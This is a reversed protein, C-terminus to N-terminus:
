TQHGRPALRPRGRKRPPAELVGGERVLASDEFKQIDNLRWRPGRAGPLKIAQPLLTGNACLNRITKTAVGWRRGLAAADYIQRDLQRERDGSGGVDSGKAAAVHGARTTRPARCHRVPHIPSRPAPDLKRNAAGHGQNDNRMNLWAAYRETIRWAEEKEPMPTKGPPEGFLEGIGVDGSETASEDFELDSPSNGIENPLMSCFPATRLNGILDSKRM